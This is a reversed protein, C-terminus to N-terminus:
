RGKALHCRWCKELSIWDKIDLCAVEKKSGMFQDAHPCSPPWNKSRAIEWPPLERVKRRPKKVVHNLTMNITVPKIVTATAKQGEIWALFLAEAVCCQHVGRLTCTEKFKSALDPDMKVSFVFSRKSYTTVTELLMVERWKWELPNQSDTFDRFYSM